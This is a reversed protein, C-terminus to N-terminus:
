LGLYKFGAKRTKEPEFFGRADIIVPNKSSIKKFTDLDINKFSDHDTVMVICDIGKLGELDAAITIGFADADNRVMVPDYAIVEKVGKKLEEIIAKAPTNRIDRVNKKFTLGLLLVKSDEPREGAKELGRLVLRSVHIPMYNNIDRGALIVKPEYGLKRAKYVLYYPDIPICHGGCLGPRYKHFNWKTGAAGLVKYVNIGMREFILSLENMLAINLDRQINEIVKAAEATKINEALYVDRAVREYLTKLTSATEKSQGSVVKTIKDLTHEKDGPNIREPSYGLSFGEGCKMGSEREIIPKLFEETVGPYVTSELVIISNEKLNKGVTIGASEIYKLDPSKDEKIPTPVCIIIFDCNGVGKPDTTFEISRNSIINNMEKEDMEMTPDVGKKLKEVKEKNVDFGLVPLGSEAFALALPLGVYGLGVICVKAENEELGKRLNGYDM